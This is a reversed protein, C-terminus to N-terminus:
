GVSPTSPVAEEVTRPLTAFLNSVYGLFPEEYAHRYEAWFTTLGPKAKILARMHADTGIFLQAPISGDKHQYYFYEWANFLMFTHLNFREREEADLKDPTAYGANVLKALTQDQVILEFPRQGHTLGNFYSQSRLERTNGRIQFALFVLSALIAVASIVQSIFSAQELTM